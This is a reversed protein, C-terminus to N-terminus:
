ISVATGEGAELSVEDTYIEGDRQVLIEAEAAEGDATVEVFRRVDEPLDGPLAVGGLTGLAPTAVSWVMDTEAGSGASTMHAAAVVPEDSEVVWSHVGEGAPLEVDAVGGAPVTAVGASRSGDPDVRRIGVG